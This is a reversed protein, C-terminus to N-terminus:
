GVNGRSLTLFVVGSSRDATNLLKKHPTHTYKVLVLMITDQTCQVTPHTLKASKQIKHLTM